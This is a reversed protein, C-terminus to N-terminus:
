HILNNVYARTIPGFYGRAPVIGAGKQFKVLAQWTKVGFYTTENVPSGPGIQSVTFGKRNLLIQLAQVDSGLDHLQLDRTFVLATRPSAPSALGRAIVEARLTKLEITLTNITNQLDAM